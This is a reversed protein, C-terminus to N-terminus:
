GGSQLVSWMAPIFTLVAAWVKSYPLTGNNYRKWSSNKSPRDWPLSCWRAAASAGARGFVVDPKQQAIDDILSAREEDTKLYGNRYGVIRIDPYQTRLKEVTEEIVEQKGGVLYFTKDAHFRDVIKLWLECGPIKCAEKVGKQRLAMMVGAGDCYGINRNIIELMQPTAHLIKEANIAVLIGKHEEVYSLLQSESTFPYVEVGRLSIKNM